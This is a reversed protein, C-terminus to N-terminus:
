KSRKYIMECWEAYQELLRLMTEADSKTKPRGGYQIEDKDHIIRRLRTEQATPLLNGLAHRLIQPAAAHDTQNVEGAFRATVADTFAIAANVINSIVPNGYDEEDALLLGDRAAKLFAKAMRLRADGFAADAAKTNGKRTM